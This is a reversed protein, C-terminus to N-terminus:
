RFIWIVLLCNNDDGFIFLLNSFDECIVTLSKGPSYIEGSAAGTADRRNRRHLSM